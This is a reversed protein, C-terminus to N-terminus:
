KKRKIVVFAFVCIVVVAVGVVALILKMDAKQQNLAAAASNDQQKGFIGTLTMGATSVIGSMISTWDISSGSTQAVTSGDEATIVAGDSTGQTQQKNKKSGDGGVQVDDTPLEPFLFFCMERFAQPNLENLNKLDELTVHGETQIGAQELYHKVGNENRRVRRALEQITKVKNIKVELMTTNFVIYPVPDSGVGRCIVCQNHNRRSRALSISLPQLLLQM